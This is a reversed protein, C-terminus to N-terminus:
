DLDFLQVIEKSKLGKLLDIFKVLDGEASDVLVKDFIERNMLYTKQAAFFANNIDSTLIFSYEDTSFKKLYSNKFNSKIQDFFRKKKEATHNTKDSYFNELSEHTENLFSQYLLQNKFANQAEDYKTESVKNLYKLTAKEAIFVALQENFNVNNKIFITAHVSEHIITEILDEETYRLMTSLIPDNFWGLTSYATVGRLYTDMGKNDFKNKAKLASKKKHFGIYPFSGAIPFWWTKPKVEYPKTVILLHSVYPRNLDVFTQYNETIDLGLSLIYPRIDISLQLKRRWDDSLGSDKLVEEIKHRSNVIKLHNWASNFVYPIQCGVTFHLLFVLIM